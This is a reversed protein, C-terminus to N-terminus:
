SIYQLNLNFNCEAPIIFRSWTKHYANIHLSAHIVATINVGVSIGLIGPALCLLNNASVCLLAFIQM